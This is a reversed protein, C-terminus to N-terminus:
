TSYITKDRKTKLLVWWRFQARARKSVPLYVSPSEAQKQSIPPVLLLVYYPPLSLAVAVLWLNPAASDDISFFSPISREPMEWEGTAVVVVFFTAAVDIAEKRSLM